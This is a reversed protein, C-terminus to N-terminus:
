ASMFNPLLIHFRDQFGCACSNMKGWKDQTPFTKSAMCHVSALLYRSFKKSFLWFLPSAVDGAAIFMWPLSIKSLSLHGILNPMLQSEQELPEHAQQRQSGRQQPHAAAEAALTCQAPLKKPDPIAKGDM